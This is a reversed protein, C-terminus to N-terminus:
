RPEGVFFRLTRKEAFDYGLDMLLEGEADLIKLSGNEGISDPASGRLWWHRIMGDEESDLFEFTYAGPPLEVRDRYSAEDAFDDRGAVVRGYRDTIAYSNEAARGFGPTEVHVFFRPPLVHPAAVTTVVRDNTAHEDGRGNPRETEAFFRAGEGM